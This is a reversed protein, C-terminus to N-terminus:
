TGNVAALGRDKFFGLFRRHLGAYHTSALHRATHKLRLYGMRMFLKERASVFVNTFVNPSLKRAIKVTTASPAPSESGKPVSAWATWNSVVIVATLM